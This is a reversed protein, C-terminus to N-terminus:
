TPYYISITGITSRYLTPNSFVEGDFAFLIVFTFMPTCVPKADVLKTRQLIDLIYRHHSLHVGDQLRAVEIGLFFFNLEGLDKVTFKSAM